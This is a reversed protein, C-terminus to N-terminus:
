VTINPLGAVQKEVAEAQSHTIIKELVTSTPLGSKKCKTKLLVLIRRKFEVSKVVGLAIRKEAKYNDEWENVTFEAMSRGDVTRDWMYGIRSVPVAQSISSASAAAARERTNSSPASRKSSGTSSRHASTFTAIKGTRVQQRIKSLKDDVMRIGCQRIWKLRFEKNNWVWSQAKDTLWDMYDNMIVNSDPTRNHFHYQVIDNLKKEAVEIATGIAATATM